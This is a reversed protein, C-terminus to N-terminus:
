RPEASKEPVRSRFIPRNDVVIRPFAIPLLCPLYQQTEFGSRVFPLSAIDRGRSALKGSGPKGLERRVKAM